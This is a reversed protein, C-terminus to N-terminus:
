SQEFLQELTYQTEEEITETTVYFEGTKTSITQRLLITTQQINLWGRQISADVSVNAEYESYKVEYKIRVYKWLDLVDQLTCLQRALLENYIANILARKIVYLTDYMPTPYLPLPNTAASTLKKIRVTSKDLLAELVDFQTREM